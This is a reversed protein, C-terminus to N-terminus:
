RETGDYKSTQALEADFRSTIRDSIRAGPPVGSPEEPKQWVTINLRLSGSSVERVRLLALLIRYTGDQRIGIRACLAHGSTISQSAVKQPSSVTKSGIARM